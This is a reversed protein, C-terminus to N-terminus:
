SMVEQKRPCKNALHSTSGCKHFKLPARGQPKNERSIPTGSTKNEIPPKYWERGIKRRTTIEEMANIYDETSFPDIFQSRTYHSLDGGGNKLIRKHGIAESIDPQVATLGGKQKLFWSM